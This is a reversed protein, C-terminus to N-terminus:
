PNQCIPCIMNMPAMTAKTAAATISIRDTNPIACRRRTGAPASTKPPPVASACWGAGASQAMRYGPRAQLGPPRAGFPVPVRPLRSPGPGGWCVGQLWQAQWYPPRCSSGVPALWSLVAESGCSGGDGPRSLSRCPRVTGEHRTDRDQRQGGPPSADITPRHKGLCGGPWVKGFHPSRGWAGVQANRTCWGSSGPGQDRGPGLDQRDM